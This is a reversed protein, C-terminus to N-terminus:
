GGYKRIIGTIIYNLKNALRTELLRDMDGQDAAIAVDPDYPTEFINEIGYKVSIEKLGRKVDSTLNINILNNVILGLIEINMDNLIEALRKLVNISLLTPATILLAGRDGRLYNISNLLIDGTEPPMDVVLYDINDYHTLALIEKIVERKEYGKLPVARGSAFLDISMIKVGNKEPPILGERGEEPVQDIRFITTASPGHLDLDLLGVKYGKNALILSTTASIISKGVGGKGSAVMIIYGIKKMRDMILTDRYDLGHNGSVM